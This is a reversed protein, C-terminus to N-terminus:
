RATAVALVLIAVIGAAALRERRQRAAQISEWSEGNLMRLVESMTPRQRPNAQCCAAIVERIKPVRPYARSALAIQQGDKPIYGTLLHCLTAGYSHVDSAPSISGGAIIEPAWYGPTGGRNRSFLVTFLAGKGLPDAVQLQGQQTVLINDPKFDGHVENAAHLNALTRALDTAVAHLQDDTLKGAYQSLAGGKLHPMVYFPRDAAINSGLIPVFGHLKRALLRVERAFAKRSDPIHAERLFKVVVSEGTDSRWGIFLDGHGGSGFAQINLVQFSM